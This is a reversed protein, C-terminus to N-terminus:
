NNYLFNILKDLDKDSLNELKLRKRKKNREQNAKVKEVYEPHKKQYEIVFLMAGEVKNM